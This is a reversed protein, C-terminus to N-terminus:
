AGVMRVGSADAGTARASRRRGADGTRGTRAVDATAPRQTGPRPIPASHSQPTSMIDDRTAPVPAARRDAARVWM